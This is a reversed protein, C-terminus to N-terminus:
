GFVESLASNVTEEAELESIEYSALMLDQRSIVDSIVDKLHDTDSFETGFQGERGRVIRIPSLMTLFLPIAGVNKALFWLFHPFQQTLEKYFHRAIDIEPLERSDTDFGKFEMLISSKYNIVNEKTDILAMLKELTSALNCKVIDNKEIQIVVITKKRSSESDKLANFGDIDTTIVKM